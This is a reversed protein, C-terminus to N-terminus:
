KAETVPEEVGQMVRVEPAEEYEAETNARIDEKTVERILQPYFPTLREDIHECAADVSKANEFAKDKYIREEIFIRELSAFHLSELLEGRRIELERQLLYKTNDVSTKLVDSVGVFRPTKDDVVCCNPSISIECDTFAYLADITKDSSTGPVLHVLIEVNAATMDEVKRVKIKGKEAAKLISEIFASQKQATGTTKGYPIETIALTKNDRKEIKARV